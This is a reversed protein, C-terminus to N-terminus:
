IPHAKEKGLVAADELISVSPEKYFMWCCHGTGYGEWDVLFPIM